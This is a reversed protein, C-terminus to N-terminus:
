VMISEVLQVDNLIEAPCGYIEALIHRGLQNM